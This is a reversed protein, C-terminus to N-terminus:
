GSIFSLLHFLFDFRSLIPPFNVLTVLITTPYKFYEDSVSWIQYCSGVMTAFYVMVRRLM